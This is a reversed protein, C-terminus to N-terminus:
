APQSRTHVRFTPPRRVNHYMILHVKAISTLVTVMTMYRNSISDYVATCYMAAELLWGFCILIMYLGIVLLAVTVSENFVFM